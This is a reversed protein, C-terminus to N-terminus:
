VNGNKMVLKHNHELLAACGHALMTLKGAAETIFKASEEKGHNNFYRAVDYLEDITNEIWEMPEPIQCHLPILPDIEVTSSFEATGYVECNNEMNGYGCYFTKREEPSETMIGNCSFCRKVSAIEKM